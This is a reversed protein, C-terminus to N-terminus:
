VEHLLVSRRMMGERDWLVLMKSLPATHRTVLEVRDGRKSFLTEQAFALAADWDDFTELRGRDTQVEVTSGLTKRPPRADRDLTKLGRKRCRRIRVRKPAYRKPTPM